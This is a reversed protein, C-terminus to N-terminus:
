GAPDATLYSRYGRVDADFGARAYVAHAADRRAHSILQVKYCGAERALGIATALLAGGVGRGRAPEDVVFNEVGAWPRAGRTLNSMVFLDLTALLSGGAEVVLIARSPTALMDGFTAAAREPSPAGGADGHGDGDDDHMQALLALVAQLDAPRARRVRAGGAIPVDVEHPLELLSM